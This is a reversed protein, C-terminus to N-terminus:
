RKAAAAIVSEALEKLSIRRAMSFQQMKRYAEQETMGHAAMLIGKARDLLKRTELSDKLQDLEINLRQVEAFRKVAVEMAPFLQEERIPKVLYAIVGADSAKEVIDQQSYATLLLVPAIDEAAIVKAATIGDMIPMKVDMIIFDPKLEKALKIAEQGNAAEGVIEHGADALMERLDLRLIAEDDALLIRLKKLM